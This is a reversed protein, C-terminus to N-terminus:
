NKGRTKAKENSKVKMAIIRQKDRQLSFEKTYRDNKLGLMAFIAIIGHCGDNYQMAPSCVAIELVRRCINANFLCSIACDLDVNIMMQSSWLSM